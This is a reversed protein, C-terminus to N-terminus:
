PQQKQRENGWLKPEGGQQRRWADRWLHIDTPSIAPLPKREVRTFSRPLRAATDQYWYAVSALDLTLANNHGHEITFRCSKEFVIPDVVHFRYVHTRGLWGTEGNVRPYGFYPHQFLEKPCWATNFYDETGTGNLTPKADGDIFVMEDGEGYWMPTPCNVYYNVGVFHGRGQIDVILYNDKGDVNAGQTGLTGWENEGGPLAETVERNYWAHFRGQGEAPTAMELYDINFYLAEIPQESQNEIEIRAGTAFPMPFYSVYARGWGPTVALPASIFNYTEGWGNGFFSGLPAEVSPYDKGDWFMRLVLDDRNLKDAGPACTIWIHTITGAGKVDLLTARAGPAIATLRDDNGGNRDYSSVRRSKVGSHIEALQGLAGTPVQAGALAPLLSVFLLTLTKM